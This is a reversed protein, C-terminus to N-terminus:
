WHISVKRNITKFHICRQYKQMKQVALPEREWLLVKESVQLNVTNNTISEELGLSYVTYVQQKM